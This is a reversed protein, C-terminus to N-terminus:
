KELFEFNTLSELESVINKTGTYLNDICLVHEGRQVLSRCLHSGLFGAGGAVV